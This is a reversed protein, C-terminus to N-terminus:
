NIQSQGWVFHSCINTHIGVRILGALMEVTMGFIRNETENAFPLM